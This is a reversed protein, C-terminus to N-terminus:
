ALAEPVREFIPEKHPSVPLAVEPPRMELLAARYRIHTYRTFLLRPRDAPFPLAEGADHASKNAAIAKVAERTDSPTILSQM